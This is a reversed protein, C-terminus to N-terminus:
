GTDKCYDYILYKEQVINLQRRQDKDLKKNGSRDWWFQGPKSCKATPFDTRSPIACGDIEFSGFTGVFPAHSWNTKVRGGQTAWDEGKM